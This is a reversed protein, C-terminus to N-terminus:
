AAVATLPQKGFGYAEWRAAVREMHDKPPLAAPPYEHKRTADILVKGARLREPANKPASFPATSPDLNVAQLDRYVYIDHEPQVRFSMAWEVAFTDRVDIDDDVVVLYKGWGRGYSWAAMAVEQVMVSRQEKRVSIVVFAASGGSEKLHVDVVPLGLSDRLHRLMPQERGIRRICSSESPPMQSVFAQYIPRQRSTVCNVHFVYNDGAPGFYGTYEGFPGELEREGALLEGELVIEASAPVLLDVTECRVVELPEGRLGGAVALEDVGYPLASVSVLAVTPDAGLVMAVPTSRGRQENKEIHRRGDQTPSIMLGARNPGKVQVRYTGVNQIGTDPDCTTVFAATIYPGPDHEVSWVPAPIRGLDVEDDREIREKCPGTAVQVPPLPHTEADRWKDFIRDVTTSLALAYIEPSGGVIGAVVPTEFGRVHDFMLGPRESAPVTQFVRRCIASIEWDKDVETPVHHLKGHEELASLYARLDRYPM